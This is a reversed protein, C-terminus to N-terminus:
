VKLITYLWIQYTDTLRPLFHGLTDSVEVAVTQSLEEFNDHTYISAAFQIMKGVLGSCNTQMRRLEMLKTAKEKGYYVHKLKEFKLIIARSTNRCLNVM